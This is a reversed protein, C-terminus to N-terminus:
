GRSQLESTHEESRLWLRFDGFTRGLGPLLLGARDALFVPLLGKGRQGLAQHVPLLSVVAECGTAYLEHRERRGSSRGGPEVLGEDADEFAGARDKAIHKQGETGLLPMVVLDGSREQEIEGLLGVLQAKDEFSDALREGLETVEECYFRGGSEMKM